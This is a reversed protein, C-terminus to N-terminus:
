GIKGPFEPFLASREVQGAATHFELDGAESCLWVEQAGQALYLQIKEAMEQKSNSPSVIEVCLEPASEFPTAEGHKEVFKRSLWAVDAVKM